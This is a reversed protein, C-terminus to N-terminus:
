TLSRLVPDLLADMQADTPNEVSAFDDHLVITAVDRAPETFLKHSPRVTKLYQDVVSHLDRGRGGQSEPRTDRLLRRIFRIDDPTDLYITLDFFERIRPTSLIHIGEFLIFDASDIHDTENGRQHTVFSYRPADISGGSKLIKLHAQLLDYDRAAPDDFNYRDANFDPITRADKYYRDESVITVSHPGLRTALREALTTKGSGSGGSIGILFPKDAVM